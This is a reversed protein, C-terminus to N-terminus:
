DARVYVAFYPRGHNNIKQEFRMDTRPGCGKAALQREAHAVARQLDQSGAVAGCDTLLFTLLLLTNM